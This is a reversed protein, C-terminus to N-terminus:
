SHPLGNPWCYDKLECQDCQSLDSTRPFKLTYIDTLVQHLLQKLQDIEQRSITFRQKGSKHSLHPAAVFDLEVEGVTLHFRPDLDVLLQYFVLQRKLDGSSSKTKGEIYSRSKPQGTKYDVLRVLNQSADLWEIRDVKGTLRFDGFKVQSFKKENFLSPQFDAQHLQYYASLIQKGKQLRHKFEKPTLIERQLAQEFHNLLFSQPPLQQTRNFHSFFTELASHIATGFALYPKKSRPVRLLNNLKFKYPCTLYTNLATPSLSFNQLLHRLYAEDETNDSSFSPQLLLQFQQKLQSPSIQPSLSHLHAQDLEYIFPSPVALRSQHNLSYSDAFSLYLHRRARTLAVYFLRREEELKEQSTPALHTILNPPLKFLQRSQHNSWHTDILRYIFVYDWELGKASHATTLTIADQHYQLPKEKFSLDYSHLIDLNQLFQELTLQHNQRNMQKLETFFANLLSLHYLSNPQYTLWNLYGSEYILAEFFDTITQNHALQHWRTLKQLLTLFAEPQSLQQQLDQNQPLSLFVQFLSLHHKFAYHSLKLLDLHPLQLFDYSLVTFFNLDDPQHAPAQLVRLLNVLQHLLPDDLLKGSSNTYFPLGTKQFFTKLTELDQNTRTIVAIQHPSTGSQLLQNIRDLIFWIEEQGTKTQVLDIQRSPIPTVSNLRTQLFSLSPHPPSNHSILQHAADLILQHSRYNQKLTIIKASPFRHIFELMNALSAGQFRFISQNPDGVVFLNASDQWYSALLYVLDMQPTNTDQFEDVLFYQYREQYTLLFDKDQRFHQLVFLIMDEFDFKGESQLLEQYRQYVLLLERNKHLQKLQQKLQTSTLNTQNTELTQQHQDLHLAFDQPSIGERKLSAITRILATLYYYPKNLPRILQLDLQDIITQFLKIKELDTLPETLQHLPFIDPNAKILNLCFTHFTSIPIKYATEGIFHILRQRMAQAAADTFTLALIASPDTDTQLLINAIRLTTVQTKGTGPGAIVVVPGEITTVAQRQESNLQKLAQKFATSQTM